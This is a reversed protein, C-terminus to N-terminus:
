IVEEGRRVKPTGKRRQARSDKNKTTTLTRSCMPFSMSVLFTEGRAQRRHTAQLKWQYDVDPSLFERRLGTKWRNRRRRHLGTDDVSESSSEYNSSCLDSSQTSSEVPSQTSYPIKNNKKKRPVSTRKEREQNRSKFEKGSTKKKNGVYESGESTSDLELVSPKSKQQKNSNIKNDTQKKEPVRDDILELPEPFELKVMEPEARIKESLNQLLKELRRKREVNEEVEKIKQKELEIEKERRIQEQERTQMVFYKFQQILDSASQGDEKEFEALKKLIDESEIISHKRGGILSDIERNAEIQIGVPGLNKACISKNLQSIEVRITELTQELEDSKENSIDYKHVDPDIFHKQLLDVAIKSAASIENLHKDAGYARSLLFSRVRFHVLRTKLKERQCTDAKPNELIGEIVILKSKILSIEEVVNRWTPSYVVAVNTLEKEGKMRDQLKQRKISEHEDLGFLMNRVLLEHEVEDISLHSVDMCRYMSQLDM